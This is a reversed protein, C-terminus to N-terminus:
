YPRTPESIHILSLDQCPGGRHIPPNPCHVVILLQQGLSRIGPIQRYPVPQNRTTRVTRRLAGHRIGRRPGRRRARRARSHAPGMLSCPRNARLFTRIGGRPPQHWAVGVRRRPAMVPSWERPSTGSTGAPPRWGCGAFTVTLLRVQYPSAVPGQQATLWWAPWVATM